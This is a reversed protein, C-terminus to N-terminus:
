NISMGTPLLGGSFREKLNKRFKLKMEPSFKLMIGNIIDTQCTKLYEEKKEKKM